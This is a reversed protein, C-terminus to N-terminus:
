RGVVRALLRRLGSRMSGRSVEVVTASAASGDPADLSPAAASTRAAREGSGKRARIEHLRVERQADVHRPDLRAVKKFDRLASETRGLRKAILGRYFLARDCEPDGAIIRDLAVLAGEMVEASGTGAGAACWALAARAAPGHVGSGSLARAFRQASAVDGRALASDIDRMSPQVMSRAIEGAVASSAAAGAPAERSLTAETLARRAEGLRVFVHECEARVADLEPPIRRAHWLPALAFYAARAAEASSGAALGLVTCPDERDIRHARERVGREGLELPGILGIRVPVVCHGLALLYVLLTTRKTGLPSSSVFDAMPTPELLRECIALEEPALGLKDLAGAGRLQLGPDLRALTRTVHESLPSERLGRWMAHWPPVAPRDEDRAGALEDLGDRFTWKADEPLSFLHHLKRYTQEVLAADLQERTVVGREVLVAGHLRRTRAVELLTENLIAADITGQEYLVAGLYSVPESTRVVAIMGARVTVTDHRKDHRFSFTGTMKQEAAGALLMALPQSALEGALCKSVRASSQEAVASM